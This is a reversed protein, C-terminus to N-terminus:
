RTGATAALTLTTTGTYSVSLTPATLVAVAVSGFLPPM